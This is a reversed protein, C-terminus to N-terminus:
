SVSKLKSWPNTGRVELPPENHFIHDCLEDLPPEPDLTAFQAAEEM